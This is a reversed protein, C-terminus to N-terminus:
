MTENLSMNRSYNHAIKLNVAKRLLAFYVNKMHTPGHMM